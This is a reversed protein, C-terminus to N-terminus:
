RNMPMRGAEGQRGIVTGPDHRVETRIEMWWAGAASKSYWFFNRIKKSEEKESPMGLYAIRKIARAWSEAADKHLSKPSRRRNKQNNTLSFHYVPRQGEPPEQIPGSCLQV